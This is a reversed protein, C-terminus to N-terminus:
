ISYRSQQLTDNRGLFYDIPDIRCDICSLNRREATSTFFRKQFSAADHMFALDKKVSLLMSSGSRVVEDAQNCAVNFSWM